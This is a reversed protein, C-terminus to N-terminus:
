AARGRGVGFSTFGAATAKGQDWTNRGDFLVRTRMVQALRAFDPSRFETWETSRSCAMPATPARTRTAPSSSTRASCARPTRPPWRTTRWCARAPAPSSSSSCWRPPRGCTTPGPSSRCGGSAWEELFEPNSVVDFPGQAHRGVIEAIKECTGVPVTSKSVVVTHDRLARGIEEAVAFVAGLDADGSESSPTGVAIFVAQTGQMAEAVSTTFALRKEKANRRVLEELGPEYIPIGGAQLLAVKSADADVCTVQNGAEALCTGTVLGVYGTGIVALKV